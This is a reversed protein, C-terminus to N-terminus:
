KHNKEYEELEKSNGFSIEFPKEPIKINLYNKNDNSQINAQQNAQQNQANQNANANNNNNKNFINAPQSQNSNPISINNKNQAQDKKNDINGFLNGTQIGTKNNINNGFLPANSKNAEEKEKKQIEGQAQSQTNIANTSIESKKEEKPIGFISKGEPPKFGLSPQDKSINSFLNPKNQDNTITTNNNEKPKEQINTLNNSFISFTEDKKNKQENNNAQSNQVSQTNNTLTGFLSGSSPIIPKNNNDNSTKNNQFNGFINNSNNPNIGSFLGKDNTNNNNTTTQNNNNNNFGFLGNTGIPNNSFLSPTQKDNTQQNNTNQNSTNTFLNGFLGKNNTNPNNNSSGFISNSSGSFLGTQTQQQNNAGFLSM